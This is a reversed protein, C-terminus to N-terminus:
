FLYGQSRRASSRLIFVAPRVRSGENGEEVAPVPKQNGPTRQRTTLNEHCPLAALWKGRGGYGAKGLARKRTDAYATHVIVLYVM